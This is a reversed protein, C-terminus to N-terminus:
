GAVYGWIRVLHLSTVIGQVFIAAPLSEVLPARAACTLYYTPRMHRGRNRGSFASKTMREAQLLLGDDV